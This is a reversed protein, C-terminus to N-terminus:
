GKHQGLGVTGKGALPTGHLLLVMETVADEGSDLLLFKVLTIGKVHYLEKGDGVVNDGMVVVVRAGLFESLAQLLEEVLQQGYLDYEMVSFGMVMM